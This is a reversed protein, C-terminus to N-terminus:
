ARVTGDSACIGVRVTPRGTEDCQYRLRGATRIRVARGTEINVGDWGGYRSEGEIQVPVVQGSVKAAYTAGIVVDRGRM